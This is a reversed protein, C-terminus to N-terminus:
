DDERLPATKDAELGGCLSNWGQWAITEAMSRRQRGAVQEAPLQDLYRDMVADDSSRGTPDIGDRDPERALWACARDGDQVVHNAPDRVWARVVRMPESSFQPTDKLGAAAWREFRAEDRVPGRDATAVAVPLAAAAGAALLVAAANVPWTRRM